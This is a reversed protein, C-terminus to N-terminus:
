GRPGFLGKSDVNIQCSGVKEESLSITVPVSYHLLLGVETTCRCHFSKVM